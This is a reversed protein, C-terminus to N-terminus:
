AWGWGLNSNLERKKTRVAHLFEDRLRAAAQDYQGSKDQDNVSTGGANIALSNRRYRNAAISLLYSAVGLLFISRYPFADYDGRYIDPPMDNWRDMAMNMATRIEESSFEYDDILINASPDTDRLFIRVEMETMACDNGRPTVPKGDRDKLEEAM